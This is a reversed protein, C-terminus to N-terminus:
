ARSIIFKEARRRGSATLWQLRRRGDTPDPRERVLKAAQLSRLANSTSQSRLELKEALEGVSQGDELWLCILVQLAAPDLGQERSRPYLRRTTAPLEVLQRALRSIDAPSTRENRFM